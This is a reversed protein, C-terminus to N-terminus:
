KLEVEDKHLYYTIFSKITGVGHREGNDVKRELKIEFGEIEGIEEEILDITEYLKEITSKKLKIM